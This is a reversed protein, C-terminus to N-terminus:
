LAAVRQFLKLPDDNKMASVSVAFECCAFKSFFLESPTKIRV